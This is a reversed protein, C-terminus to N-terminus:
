PWVTPVTVCAGAVVLMRMGALTVAPTVHGRHNVKKFVTEAAVMAKHRSFYYTAGEATGLLTRLVSYAAVRGTGHDVVVAFGHAMGGELEHVHPPWNGDTAFFQAV